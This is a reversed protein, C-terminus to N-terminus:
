VSSYLCELIRLLPKSLGSTLDSALETIPLRRCRAMLVSGSRRLRRCKVCVVVRGLLLSPMTEVSFEAEIGGFCYCALNSPLLISASCSRYTKLVTAASLALGRREAPKM